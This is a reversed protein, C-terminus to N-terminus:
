FEAETPPPTCNAIINLVTATAPTPGGHNCTYCIEVSHFCGPTSTPIPIMAYTSGTPCPSQAKASNLTLLFALILSTIGGLLAKRIKSFFPQTQM